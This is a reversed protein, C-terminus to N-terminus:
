KLRWIGISTAQPKGSDLRWHAVCQGRQGSKSANECDATEAPRSSANCSNDTSGTRGTGSGTARGLGVAGRPSLTDSAPASSASPESSHPGPRCPAIKACRACTTPWRRYRECPSRALNRVHKATPPSTKPLLFRRIRSAKFHRASASSGRTTRPWVAPVHIVLHRGARLCSCGHHSPGRGLVAHGSRNDPDCRTWRRHVADALVPWREGRLRGCLHAAGAQAADAPARAVARALADRWTGSRHPRLASRAGALSPWRFFRKRCCSFLTRGPWPSVAAM